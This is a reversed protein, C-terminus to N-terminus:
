ENRERAHMRENVTPNERKRREGPKKEGSLILGNARWAAFVRGDRKLDDFRCRIPVRHLLSSSHRLSRSGSDLLESLYLFQSLKGSPVDELQEYAIRGM